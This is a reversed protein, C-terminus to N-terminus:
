DKDMIMNYEEVSIVNYAKDPAVLEAYCRKFPAYTQVFPHIMRGTKLFFPEDWMGPKIALSIEAEREYYDLEDWTREARERKDRRMLFDLYDDALSQAQSLSDSDGDSLKDLLGVAFKAAGDDYEEAIHSYLLDTANDLGIQNELEEENEIEIKDEDYSIKVQLYNKGIEEIKDYIRNGVIDSGSGNIFLVPKKKFDSFQLKDIDDETNVTVELFDRPMQINVNHIEVEKDINIITYGKGNKKEDRAEAISSRTVSGPYIIQCDGVRRYIRNHLHGVIIIDFMTYDIENEGLEFALPFDEQLAQHLVLIKTNYNKIKNGLLKIQDSLAEHEIATVYNCGVIAISNEEDLYPNDQLFVLNDFLYDPSLFNKRKTITHNGIVSLVPKALREMCSKFVYISRASPTPKDFIDGANIVLDVDEKIIEDIMNNFTNYFDEEREYNGYQVYGLHPDTFVAIKM